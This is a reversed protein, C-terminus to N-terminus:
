TGLFRSVVIAPKQEKSQLTKKKELLSDIFLSLFEEKLQIEM